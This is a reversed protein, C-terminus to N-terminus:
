FSWFNRESQQNNPPNKANSKKRLKPMKTQLNMKIPLLKKSLQSITVKNGENQDREELNLGWQRTIKMEPGVSFCWTKFRGEANSGLLSMSSTDSRMMFETPKHRMGSLWITNNDEAEREGFKLYLCTGNRMHVSFYM